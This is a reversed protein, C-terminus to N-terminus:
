SSRARKAGSSKANAESGNRNMRKRKRKQLFMVSGVLGVGAATVSAFILLGTTDPQSVLIETVYVWAQQTWGAYVQAQQSTPNITPGSLTLNYLGPSLGRFVVTGGANVSGTCNGCLPVNTSSYNHVKVVVVAGLTGGQAKRVVVELSGLVPSVWVVRKLSSQGTSDSVAIQVTYNGKFPFTHRITPNPGTVNSTGDGFNWSYRPNTLRALGTQTSRFSASADLTAYDGALVSPPNQPAYDFFAVVPTNGFIAAGTVDQVFQPSQSGSNDGPNLLHGRDVVFLSSGIGKVNFTVSFLFQANLSGVLSAGVVTQALHVQGIVADDTPCIANSYVVIGDICAASTIPNRGAFVNNAFNFGLSANAQIVGPNSQTPTWYDTYNLRVDFGNISQGATLNMMVNVVVQTSTSNPLICCSQVPTVYVASIPSMISHAEPVLRPGAYGLISIVLLM